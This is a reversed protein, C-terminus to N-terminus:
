KMKKNFKSTPFLCLMFRNNSERYGSEWIAEYLYLTLLLLPEDMEILNALFAKHLILCYKGNWLMKKETTEM